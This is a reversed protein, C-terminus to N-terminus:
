CLPELIHLEVANFVKLLCVMLYFLFVLMM